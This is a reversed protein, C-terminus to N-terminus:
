QGHYKQVPPYDREQAPEKGEAAPCLGPHDAGKTRGRRDALQLSNGCSKKLKTKWGEITKASLEGLTKYLEPYAAGSNYGAMFNDRAQEKHGWSAAAIAQMYLRVLSAKLNAKDDQIARVAATGHTLAPLTANSDVPFLADIEKKNLIAERVADPLMYARYMKRSGGRVIEWFYPWQERDARIEIGRDSNPLEPLRLDALEKASYAARM